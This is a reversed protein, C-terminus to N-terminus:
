YHASTLVNRKGLELDVGLIGRSGPDLDGAIRSKKWLIDIGLNKKLWTLGNAEIGGLEVM